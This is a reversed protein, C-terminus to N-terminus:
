EETTTDTTETTATDTTSDITTTDATSTSSEEGVEIMEIGEAIEEAEETSELESEVETTDEIKEIGLYPLIAEFIQNAIRKAITSSSQDDVTPTDVVVYVVVQPDDVPAFGIFSLVYNGESRPLKQATGTKGGISYGEVAVKTGTGSEVVEYMYERLMESVEDSVTQKLVTPSIEEVTDGSSDIIKSVVHPQYLDGGNILSCFASAMQIMTVNFNQGFANTALNSSTSTLEEASYILSATSAEGPLDIWTKQGFGYLQQYKAFTDGGIVFAINMLAVNCSNALADTITQLGHGYRNACHIDWGGVTLYGECNYTEDGSLIGTDLGMAITFPKFTSGPEYTSSICFNQWIGNLIDMTEDDTMVALEEDTYYATLDYPDNLDFGPYSAMALIEGSNPDMVIVATNASGNGDGPIITEIEEGTEEDITTITTGSLEENAALIIDEVISQINVDLTTVISYGNTASIITQEMESDSNYYGYSRGNTGSLEDNYQLELGIVGETSSAFGIVSAALSGYPYVRTYEKEFWIGSITSGIEDDDMLEQFAAMEEYSVQKCLVKYQSTPSNEIVDMMTEASVSPFYETVLAVTSEINEENANLVKSDLIVNYVDECTALVTGKSDLIDGRQYPIISSDYQQQSLVIKAYREGDTYQIYMMRVILAVFLLCVVGFVIFLKTQM